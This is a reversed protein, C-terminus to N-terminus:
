SGCGGGNKDSTIKQMKIDYILFRINECGDIVIYLDDMLWEKKKIEAKNVMNIFLYERGMIEKSYYQRYFNSYFGLIKKRLSTEFCDVDEINPNLYSNDHFINANLIYGEVGNKQYYEQGNVVQISAIFILLLYRM